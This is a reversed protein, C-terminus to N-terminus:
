GAVSAGRECTGGGPWGGRAWKCTGRAGFRRQYPGASGRPRAAPGGLGGLLCLVLVVAGAATLVTLWYPRAIEAPGCCM